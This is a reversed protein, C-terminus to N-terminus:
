KYEKNPTIVRIKMSRPLAESLLGRSIYSDLMLYWHDYAERRSPSKPLYVILDGDKHMNMIRLNRTAQFIDGPEQVFVRTHAFEDTVLDKLYPISSYTQSM